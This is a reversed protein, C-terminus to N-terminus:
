GGLAAVAEQLFQETHRDAVSGAKLYVTRLLPRGNPDCVFHQRQGPDVAVVQHRCKMRGPPCGQHAALAETLFREIFHDEDSGPRIPVTVFVTGHGDSEIAHQRWGAGHDTWVHRYQGM